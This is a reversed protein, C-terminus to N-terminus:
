LQLVAALPAPLNQRHAALRHLCNSRLLQQGGQPGQREPSRLLPWSSAPAQQRPAAAASTGAHPLLPWCRWWAGVNAMLLLLLLGVKASTTPRATQSTLPTSRVSTPRCTPPRWFSRLEHQPLLGAAHMVFRWGSPLGGSVKDHYAPELRQAVHLQKCTFPVVYVCAALLWGGPHHGCPLGGGDPHELRRWDQSVAQPGQGHECVPHAPLRRPLAPSSTILSSPLLAACPAPRLQHLCWMASEHQDLALWGTCTLLACCLM